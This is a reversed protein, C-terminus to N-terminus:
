EGKDVLKRNRKKVVGTPEDLVGAPQSKASEAASMLRKMAEAPTEFVDASAPKLSVQKSSQPNKSYFDRIIQERRIEIEGGKGMIDGRANMRANGVAVNDESQARLADMDIVVGRMSVHVKKTARRM